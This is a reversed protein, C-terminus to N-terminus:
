LIFPCLIMPASQFSKRQVENYAAGPYLWPYSSVYCFYFNLQSQQEHMISYFYSRKKKHSPNKLELCVSSCCSKDELKVSNCSLQHQFPGRSTKSPLLALTTPSQHNKKKGKQLLIYKFALM